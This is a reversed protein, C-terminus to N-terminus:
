IVVNKVGKVLEHCKRGRRITGPATFRIYQLEINWILLEVNGGRVMEV